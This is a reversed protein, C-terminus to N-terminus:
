SLTIKFLSAAIIEAFGHLHNRVDGIDDFIANAFKGVFAFVVNDDGFDASRGAVDFSQREEFRDPLENEFDARLVDDVHM